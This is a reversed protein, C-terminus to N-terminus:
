NSRHAILRDIAELRQHHRPQDPEILTLALIHQRAVELRGAEVAIAAALERNDPDYPNIQLARTAKELAKDLAGSRRYLHALNVAYVPTKEERRDIEQLHTVAAQPRDGHLYIDTLRKHPFLDVPRARAYQKLLPILSEDRGGVEKIRRRLRLELLDPHDPYQGLWDRLAEDSIEVPPRILDPWRDATFPRSRAKAPQGVRQVMTQAIAVIRAQKSAILAAALEPDAMRLQDKLEELPPQPALGWQTIQAGAWDLFGRFFQERAVGLARPM